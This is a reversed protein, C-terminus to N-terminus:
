KKLGNSLQNFSQKIKTTAQESAIKVMEVTDNIPGNVTILSGIEMTNNQMTGGTQPMSQILRQAFEAPNFKSWEWINNTLDAPLVSSGRQLPTLIAGSNPTIIMEPGSEQTWALEDRAVRKIGTAHGGYVNGSAGKWVNAGSVKGHGRYIVEDGEIEYIPGSESPVSNQLDIMSALASAANNAADAVGNAADAISGLADVASNGSYAGDITNLLANNLADTLAMLNEESFYSRELESVLNDARNAFMSALGESAQNAQEQLQWVENEVGMINSIFNSSEATLAAGYEALANTGQFWGDTLAQSLQVGHEQATLLITQGILESNARVSEFSATLIADVDELSAELADIEAQRLEKYDELQQDLASKQTDISHGYETEALTDQAEKLQEELKARKARAAQSDDDAIAALQRQIDTIAKSEDAIQKRYEHLDREADLADKQKEILESYADIEENIGDVVIEIRAKNLEIISDKAAESANVADWQSQKLEILKDAYETASYRGALYNKNLEEIEKNYQEVQYSALEYQQGLMGLQALGEKTWQNDKTAVIADDFLGIMNSLEDNFASFQDQIRNFVETHLALLANDFEEIAKKCDLIKGEVDTLSNVM